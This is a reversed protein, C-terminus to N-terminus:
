AIPASIQCELRQSQVCSADYNPSTAVVEICCASCTRLEEPFLKILTLRVTLVSKWEYQESPRQDELQADVIAIAELSIYLRRRSLLLVYLHYLLMYLFKRLLRGVFRGSMRWSTLRFTSQSSEHGLQVWRALRSLRLLTSATTLRARPSLSPSTARHPARSSRASPRSRHLAPGLSPLLAASTPTSELLSRETTPRCLGTLWLGIRDCLLRRVKVNKIVVSRSVSNKCNGCARYLKGFDM